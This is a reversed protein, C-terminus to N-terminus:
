FIISKEVKLNEAEIGEKKNRKFGVGGEESRTEIQNSSAELTQSIGQGRIAGRGVERALHLCM